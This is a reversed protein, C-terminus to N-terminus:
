RTQEPWRWRGALQWPLDPREVVRRLMADAHVAGAGTSIAFHLQGAGTRLLLLDGPADSAVFGAAEIAAAIRAADGGRMAYGSPIEGAFGEARMALGALGLCDLGRGDRGHLRFRTGIAARAAALAREGM